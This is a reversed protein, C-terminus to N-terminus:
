VRLGVGLRSASRFRDSRSPQSLPHQRQGLEVQVDLAGELGVQENGERLAVAHPQRRGIRRLQRRAVGVEGVQLGEQVDVVGVERHQPRLLVEGVQGRGVQAPGPGRTHPPRLDEAVRLGVQLVPHRQLDHEAPQARRERLGPAVAQGAVQDHAEEAVQPAVCGLIEQPARQGEALV